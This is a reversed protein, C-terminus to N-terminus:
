KDPRPGLGYVNADGRFGSARLEAHELRHVVGQDELLALMEETRALSYGIELAVYGLYVPHNVRNMYGVIIELAKQPPRQGDRYFPTAM